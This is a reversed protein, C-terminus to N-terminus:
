EVKNSSTAQWELYAGDFVKVKPYGLVSKLAFYVIGARISTECYLIMTKDPTVGKATFLATLEEKSKLMGNADLVNVYDINIAGPVHGKRLETTAKGAWEDPTRVDVIVFEPNGAANQVDAMSIWEETNTTPTFTTPKLTSAADTLPKRAAKWAKMNGNLIKVNAAGLYKLVWYMRGAYKGSGEDYVVITKDASIGKQGFIAAMEEAPKIVNKIPVNNYLTTHPINVANPIHAKYEDIAGAQIVVYQENKLNASLDAVSIVDQAMLASAAALFCIVILSKLYKM